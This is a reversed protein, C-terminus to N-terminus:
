LSLTVNYSPSSPPGLSRGGHVKACTVRLFIANRADLLLMRYLHNFTNIRNWMLGGHRHLCDCAVWAVMDLDERLTDTSNPVRVDWAMIRAFVM